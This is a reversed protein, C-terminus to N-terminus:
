LFTLVTNNVVAAVAVVVYPVLLVVFTARGFGKFGLKFCFFRTAVAGLLLVTVAAMDAALLGGFGGMRLAWGALAGSEYVYGKGSMGLVAYTSVYDLVVLIGVLLLLWQERWPWLLRSATDVYQEISRDYELREQMRRKVLHLVRRM